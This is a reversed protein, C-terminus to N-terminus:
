EAATRAPGAAPPPIITEVNVRRLYRALVLLDEAPLDPFAPMGAGPNGRELYARLQEVSQTAVRANMVLGPAKATGRADDGHCTACRATFSPPAPAPQASLGLLLLTAAIM